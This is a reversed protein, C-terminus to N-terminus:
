TARTYNSQKNLKNNNNTTTTITLQERTNPWQPM